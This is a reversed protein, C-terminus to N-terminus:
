EVEDWTYVETSFIGSVVSDDKFVQGDEDIFRYGFLFLGGKEQLEPEKSITLITNTALTVNSKSLMTSLEVGLVSLMTMIIVISSAAGFNTYFM